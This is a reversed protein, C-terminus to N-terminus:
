QRKIQIYDRGLGLETPQTVLECLQRGFVLIEPFHASQSNHYIPM